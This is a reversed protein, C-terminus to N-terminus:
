VEETSWRDECYPEELYSRFDINNNMFSPILQNLVTQAAQEYDGNEWERCIHTAVAQVHRISTRCEKSIAMNDLHYKLVYDLQASVKEIKRISYLFPWSDDWFEEENSHISDDEILYLLWEKFTRKGGDALGRTEAVELVSDRMDLFATRYQCFLEDKKKLDKNREVITNTIDILLAVVSSGFIGYGINEILSYIRVGCRGNYLGFIMLAIAILIIIVYASYPIATYQKRCKHAKNFHM